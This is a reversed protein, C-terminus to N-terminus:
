PCYGFPQPRGVAWGQAFDVGMTTLRQLIEDSEVFEAITQIGAIHGITNVAEVIAGDMPDELMACVFSGDIKIFDVALSKLYSFSSMGTGFDDLAVKCGFERLSTILKMACDFDAIAATETIEFGVYGPPIGFEHLQDRIYGM